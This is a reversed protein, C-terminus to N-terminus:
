FRSMMLPRGSIHATLCGVKEPVSKQIRLHTAAAQSMSVIQSFILFLFFGIKLVNVSMM